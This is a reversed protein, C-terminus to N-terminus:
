PVSQCLGLGSYEFHMSIQLDPSAHDRHQMEVELQGRSGDSHVLSEALFGSGSSCAPHTKHGEPQTQWSWGPRLPSQAAAAPVPLDATTGPQVLSKITGAQILAHQVSCLLNGWM